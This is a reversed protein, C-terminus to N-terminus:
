CGGEGLWKLERLLRIREVYTMPAPTTPSAIARWNAELSPVDVIKSSRCPDTPVSVLLRFESTHIYEFLTTINIV